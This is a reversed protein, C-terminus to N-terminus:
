KGTKNSNKVHFKAWCVSIMLTEIKTIASWDAMNPGIKKARNKPRGINTSISTRFSKEVIM